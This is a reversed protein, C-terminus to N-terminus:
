IIRAQTVLVRHQLRLNYRTYIEWNQVAAFSEFNTEEYGLWKVEYEGALRGSNTYIERHGLIEEPIFCGNSQRKKALERFYRKEVTELPRFLKTAIVSWKHGAEKLEFIRDIELKSLFRPRNSRRTRTRTM